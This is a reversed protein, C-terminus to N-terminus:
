DELSELAKHDIPHTAQTIWTEVGTEYLRNLKTVHAVLALFRQNRIDGHNKSIEGTTQIIWFPTDNYADPVPEIVVEGDILQARHSVLFDVHGHARNALTGQSPIDDGLDDRFARPLNDLIQGAPYAVGTVWDAESTISAIVPGEAPEVRGDPHRHELRAGTRKLYEVLQFAALADLAPNQLVVMDAPARVGEPGSALLLSSLTPALTRALIMGGMSHGSLLVKSDPRAKAAATVRVLSERMQYSAVREAADKRSWFSLESWLPIRNTAGRWGLYVGVVHDPAPSGEARLTKGLGEMGDRFRTLDNEERDPNANNMWGHTYTVVIIGRNSTANKEAILALTAELQEPAWLMGFEDFEIVALSVGVTEAAPQAIETVYQEPLSNYLRNSVCGPLVLSMALLVIAARM